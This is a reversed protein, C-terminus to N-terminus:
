SSAPRQHSRPSRAKFLAKRAARAVDPDPHYEALATLLGLVGPHPVRWLGSVIHRQVEMPVEPLLESVVDNANAEELLGAGLDVLLWTREQATLEIGEGHENLWVAAHARLVPNELAARVADAAPEGIRDLVAFAAGRLGASGAAAAAILESAASAASRTALWASIEAEGDEADCGALAVLLAEACDQSGRGVVPVHWGHARLRRHMGWVGLPSLTVTLTDPAEEGEATGLEVVGLDALMELAHSLGGPEGPPSVAAGREGDATAGRGDASAAGRGVGAAASYADFLADMHVPRGATYLAIALGELEDSELLASLAETWARLTEETDLRTPAPPRGTLLGAAGAVRWAARVERGSLDLARSAAAVTAGDLDSRVPGRSRAWASLAHAARILPAVRAAAALEERRELRVAPLRLRGSGSDGGAARRPEVGTWAAEPWGVPLQEAEDLTGAAGM